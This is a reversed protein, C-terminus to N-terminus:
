TRIGDVWPTAVAIEEDTLNALCGECLGAATVPAGRCLLCTGKIRATRVLRENDLADRLNEREIGESNLRRM